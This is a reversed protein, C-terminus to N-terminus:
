SPVIQGITHLGNEDGAGRPEDAAVEGCMQSAAVVHSQQAVVEAVGLVLQAVPRGCASTTKWRAPTLRGSFVSSNSDPLAPKVRLHEAPMRLWSPRLGWTITLEDIWASSRCGRRGSCAARRPSRERCNAASVRLAPQRDEPELVDKALPAPRVVIRDDGREAVVDGM